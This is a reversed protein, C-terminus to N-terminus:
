GPPKKRHLLKLEPSGDARQGSPRYVRELTCKIDARTDGHGQQGGFYM